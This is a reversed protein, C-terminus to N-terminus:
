PRVSFGTSIFFPKRLCLAGAATKAAGEKLLRAYHCQIQFPTLRQLPLSGFRPKLHLEVICKYGQLTKPAVNSEAYTSLWKDFFEAVTMRSTDVYAGTSVDSVRRTLETEAEARTGQVTVYDFVRSGVPGKGTEVRIQWSSKGRKRIRGKM